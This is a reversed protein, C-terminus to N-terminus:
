DVYNIHLKQQTCMSWAHVRECMFSEPKTSKDLKDKTQSAVREHNVDYRDCRVWFKWTL